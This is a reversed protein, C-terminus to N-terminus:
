LRKGIEYHGKIKFMDTVGETMRPVLFSMGRPGNEATLFGSWLLTYFFHNSQLHEGRGGLNYQDQFLDGTLWFRNVRPIIQPLMAPWWSLHQLASNESVDKQYNWRIWRHRLRIRRRCTTLLIIFELAQPGPGIITHSVMGLNLLNLFHITLGWSETPQGLEASHRESPTKWLTTTLRHNSSSDDLSKKVWMDPAQAPIAVVTADPGSDRDREMCGEMHSAQAEECCPLKLVTLHRVHCSLAGLAFTRPSM